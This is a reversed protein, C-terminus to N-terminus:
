GHDARVPCKALSTQRQATWDCRVRDTKIESSAGVPAALQDVPAEQRVPIEVIRLQIRQAIANIGITHRDPPRAIQHLDIRLPHDM